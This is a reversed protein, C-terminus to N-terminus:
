IKNTSGFGKDSRESSISLLENLPLETIEMKEVRHIIGQAIAKKTNYILANEPVKGLLEEESINTFVVPFDNANTIAIKIEGRYGSDIIGASRKIGKIGTSSREEIQLYFEPSCAWALGTPILKTELPELMIFPEEFCAYFDYGADEDKKSPLIADAKMKAFYVKRSNEFYNM